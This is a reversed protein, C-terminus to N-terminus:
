KTVHIQPNKRKSFIRDFGIKFLKDFHRYIFLQIFLSCNFFLDSWYIFSDYFGSNILFSYFEGFKPHFFQNLYNKYYFEAYVNVVPIFANPLRFLLSIATNLVVMKIVKNIADENEKKISELKEKGVHGMLNEINILKENLIRRLLVVLYIDIILIFVEFVVYNLIDFISNSIIFGDNSIHTRHISSLDHDNSIPYSAEPQDYNIEYKFYKVVSFGCSILLCVALYTKIGVQSMFNVLKGHDKGILAIRNLAFAVYTFNWMFRFATIFCEKFIMKFLQIVVLKRIKPCFVEYPYFCETMWSLIQIVLISMSFISNYLLYDYQKFGKFIDTNNKHLVTVIVLINTIIGIFSIIYSSIKFGIELKKNLISYDNLNWIDGFSYGNKDCRSKMLTFNCRSMASNFNQSFLVRIINNMQTRYLLDTGISKNLKYIDGFYRLSFAQNFQKYYQVLWLFTCSFDSIKSFYFAQKDCVQVFLVLQNFPYDVYLCFDKDPFVASMSQEQSYYFCDMNIYKVLSSNRILAIIDYVDVSINSNLSKMWNIGNKHVMKRFYNTNFSIMSLREFSKFIFDDIRNISGFIYISEIERFVDPHLFKLDFNINEVRDLELRKINSVIHPFTHNSFSLVNRKYFSDFLGILQFRGIFSDQFVIACLPKKFDGDIITFNANDNYFNGYIGLVQFISYIKGANVFDECTRYEAIKDMVFDFKCNLCLVRRINMTMKFGDYKFIKIGFKKINVLNISLDTYFADLFQFLNIIFLRRLWNSSLDNISWRLEVIGDHPDAKFVCKHENSIQSMDFSFSFNEFIDCRLGIKERGLIKDIGSADIITNVKELRCIRPLDCNFINSRNESRILDPSVLFSLYFVLFYKVLM